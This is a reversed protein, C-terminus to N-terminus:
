DRAPWRGTREHYEKARNAQQVSPYTARAMCTHCQLAYSNLLRNHRPDSVVHDAPM